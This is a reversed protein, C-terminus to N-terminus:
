IEFCFPSFHQGLMAFTVHKLINIGFSRGFENHIKTKKGISKKLTWKGITGRTM